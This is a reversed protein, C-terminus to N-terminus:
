KQFTDEFIFGYQSITSRKHKTMEEGGDLVKMESRVLNPYFSLVCSWTHQQLVDDTPPQPAYHPCWVSIYSSEGGTVLIDSEITMYPETRIPIRLKIMKSNKFIRHPQRWTSEYRRSKSLVHLQLGGLSEGSKIDNDGLIPITKAEREPWVITGRPDSYRPGDAPDENDTWDVDSAVDSDEQIDEVEASMEIDSM